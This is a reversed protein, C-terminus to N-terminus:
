YNLRVHSQSGQGKAIKQDSMQLELLLDWRVQCWVARVKRSPEYTARSYEAWIKMMICVCLFFVNERESYNARIIM